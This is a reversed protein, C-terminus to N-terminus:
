SPTICPAIGIHMNFYLGKSPQSSTVTQAAQATTGYHSGGHTLPQQRTGVAAESTRNSNCASQKQRAGIAVIYLRVFAATSTHM